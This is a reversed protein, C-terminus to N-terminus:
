VFEDRGDLKSFYKLIRDDVQLEGTKIKRNIQEDALLNKIGFEPAFIGAKIQQHMRRWHWNTNAPADTNLSFAQAKETVSRLYRSYSRIPYHYLTVPLSGGTLGAATCATSSAGHNGEQVDVDPAPRHGCKSWKSASERFTFAEWFPAVRYPRFIFDYRPVMGLWCNDPVAALAEKLGSYAPDPYWFEDSDSHLIWEAQLDTSARRAMDTVWRAQFFGPDTVTKVEAVGINVYKSLIELTKDTSRHNVILFRDVGMALHYRLNHDLIDDENHTVMTMIIRM